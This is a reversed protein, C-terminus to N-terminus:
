AVWKICKGTRKLMDSEVAQHVRHVEEAQPVEGGGGGEAPPSFAVCGMKRTSNTSINVPKWATIRKMQERLRAKPAAKQPHQALDAGESCESEQSIHIGFRAKRQWLVLKEQHVRLSGASQQEYQWRGSDSSRDPKCVEVTSVSTPLPSM